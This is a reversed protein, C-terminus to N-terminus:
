DASGAELDARLQQELAVLDQPLPLGFGKLEALKERVEEYIVHADGPTESAQEMLLAIGAKLNEFSM